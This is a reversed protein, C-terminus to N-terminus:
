AIKAPKSLISPLLNLRMRGLVAAKALLSVRM